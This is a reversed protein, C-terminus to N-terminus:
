PEPLVARLDESRIRIDEGARACGSDIVEIHVFQEGLQSLAVRGAV